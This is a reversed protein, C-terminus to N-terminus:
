QTQEEKTSFQQWDKELRERNKQLDSINSTNLQTELQKARHIFKRIQDKKREIKVLIYPDITNRTIVAKSMIPKVDEEFDELMRTANRIIKKAAETSTQKEAQTSRFIEFTRFTNERARKQTFQDFYKKFSKLLTTQDEPANDKDAMEAAEKKLLEIEQGIAFINKEKPTKEKLRKPMGKTPIDHSHRNFFYESLLNTIFIYEKIQENTPRNNISKFYDLSGQLSDERTLDPNEGSITRKVKSPRSETRTPKNTILKMYVGDPKVEM